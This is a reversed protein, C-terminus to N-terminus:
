RSVARLVLQRNAGDAASEVDGVVEVPRGTMIAALNDLSTTGLDFYSSHGVAGDTRFEVAGFSDHAPNRGHWLHEAALDGQTVLDRLWRGPLSLPLDVADGAAPDVGIGIPDWEALGAWVTAGPALRADEAHDLGTGPSGVFVLEHVPIGGAAAVGAVLSGYSHGVVTVHVDRGAGAGVLFRELDARAAEAARRLTADAGGPTDYGLWAVTAVAPDLRAAADHLAAADQRFGGGGFPGFNDIDNRIGPVLVAVHRARELDGFVEVVRGDGAPDFLLIQRNGSLWGTFLAARGEALRLATDLRELEAPRPGEGGSGAGRTVLLERQAGLAVAVMELREVERHMLIRNAAYRMTPPAGDLRGVFAPHDLVLRSRASAPASGLLAAVADPALRSLEGISPGDSWDQFSAEWDALGFPAVVAYRARLRAGAAVVAPVGSTVLVEGERVMSARRRLDSADGSLRHTVKALVVEVWTVGSSRGVSAAVMRAEIAAARLHSAEIELRAALGVM